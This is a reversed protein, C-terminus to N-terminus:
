GTGNPAPYFGPSDRGPTSICGAADKAAIHGSNLNWRFVGASRSQM